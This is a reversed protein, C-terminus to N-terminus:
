LEVNYIECIWTLILDTYGIIGEYELLANLVEGESLSEIEGDIFGCDNKLKERIHSPIERPKPTDVTLTVFCEGILKVMVAEISCNTESHNWIDTAIDRIMETTLNVPIGDLDYISEMMEAYQYFHGKTYWKNEVCLKHLADATLTRTEKYM